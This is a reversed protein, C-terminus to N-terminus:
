ELEEDEDYITVEDFCDECMGSLRIERWGADTHVNLDSFGAGCRVCKEYKDDEM